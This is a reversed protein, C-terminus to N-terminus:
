NQIYVCIHMELYRRHHEIIDISRKREDPKVLCSKKVRRSMKPRVTTTPTTLCPSLQHFITFLIIECGTQRLGLLPLWTKCSSIAATRGRRNLQSFCNSWCSVFVGVHCHGSVVMDACSWAIFPQWHRRKCLPATHINFGKARWSVARLIGCIDM